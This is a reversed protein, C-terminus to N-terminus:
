SKRRLFQIPFLMGVEKRYNLYKEGFRRLSSKEEVWARIAVLPVCILVAFIFSYYANAILPYALEELVIGLYIPHRIYKYPGIKVLRVNRIKQVGVAHIAWQKGLAAMGWFRMRFSGGLLVVGIIVVYTSIKRHVLYYESIMFIFLLLYTFTVVVLTWDGHFEERHKEKSTKFTEWAREVIMASILFAFAVGWFTKDFLVCMLIAYCPVLINGAFM